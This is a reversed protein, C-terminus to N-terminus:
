LAMPKVVLFNRNPNPTRNKMIATNPEIKPAIKLTSNEAFTNPATRLRIPNDLTVKSYENRATKIGVTAM